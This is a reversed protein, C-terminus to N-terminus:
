AAGRPLRKSRLWTEVATMRVRVWSGVDLVELEGREAAQVLLGRGIGYARAARRLTVYPEVPPADM